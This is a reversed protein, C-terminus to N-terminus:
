DRSRGSTASSPRVVLPRSSRRNRVTSKSTMSIPRIPSGDRGRLEDNIRNLVAKRLYAQLAGVSRPEFGEIRRFTRLLTDQVLDDTDTLDRAWRPLRGSAWRQLPKLHRAFLQELAQQDGGRAREILRFTSELNPSAGTAHPSAEPDSSDPETREGDTPRSDEAM